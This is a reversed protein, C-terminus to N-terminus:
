SASRRPSGPRSSSPTGDASRAAGCGPRARGRHSSVPREEPPDRREPDMEPDAQDRRHRCGGGHDRLRLHQGVPDGPQDVAIGIREAWEDDRQDDDADDPTDGPPGRVPRRRGSDDRGTTRSRPRTAFSSASSPGAPSSATSTMAPSSPPRHGRVRSGCSGRAPDAATTGSAAPHPDQEGIRDATIRSMATGSM